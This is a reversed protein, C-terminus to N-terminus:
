PQVDPLRSSTRYEALYDSLYGTVPRIDIETDCNAPYGTDSRASKIDPGDRTKLCWLLAPFSLGSFDEAALGDLVFEQKISQIDFNIVNRDSSIDM